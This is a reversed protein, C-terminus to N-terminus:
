FNNKIIRKARINSFKALVEYENTKIFNAYKKLNNENDLISIRDGEKLNTNSVDLMFCDMCINVVKCSFNKVNLAIGLYHMDLGDAYGIPVIAVRMKKNAVCRYNYGVLSNPKVKNIKVIETEIKIAPNLNNCFLSYGVRVMDLHHNCFKLASSNDAHVIPKLRFKKCLDVFKSFSKMQYNIYCDNTAFHTFLGELILKSNAIKKLMQKFQCISSVGYRNMGTNIKIHVNFPKNQKILFNIDDLSQCAYSFKNNLNKRELPGVVLIKNNCFKAVLKAEHLNSVGFFDAYPKLIQVAQKLGVGYANAKVMACILSNKNTLKIDTINKILNNRSIILRNFM